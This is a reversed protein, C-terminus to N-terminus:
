IQYAKAKNYTSDILVTEAIKKLIRVFMAYATFRYRLDVMKFIKSLAVFEITTRDIKRRESDNDDVRM